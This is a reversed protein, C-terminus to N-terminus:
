KLWPIGFEVGAVVALPHENTHQSVAHREVLVGDQYHYAVIEHPVEFWYKKFDLVFRVREDGAAIGVGALWMPIDKTWIWGYGALVRFSAAWQAPLPEALLDIESSYYPYGQIDAELERQSATYPGHAPIPPHPSTEACEVDFDDHYMFTTQVVLYRDLRVGVFGYALQEERSCYGTSFVSVKNPSYGVQLGGFLPGPKKVEGRAEWAPLCVLLAAVLVAHASAPALRETTRKVSDM